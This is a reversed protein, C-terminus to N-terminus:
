RVAGALVAAVRAKALAEELDRLPDARIEDGRQLVEGALVDVLQREPRLLARSARCLLSAKGPREDGNGIGDGALQDELPVLEEAGVRRAFPARLERGCEDTETGVADVDIAPRDRETM